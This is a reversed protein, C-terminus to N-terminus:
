NSTLTSRASVDPHNKADVYEQEGLRMLYSKDKLRMAQITSLRTGSYICIIDGESFYRGAFLGHFYCGLLTTKAVYTERQSVLYENRLQTLAERFEIPANLYLPNGQM